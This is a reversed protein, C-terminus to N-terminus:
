EDAADSTYLLCAIWAIYHGVYMGAATTWGYLSSQAYRFVSLDSMGIHMAANCFWSWLFVHWFTYKMQGPFPESGEGWVSFFDSFSKIELQKAAVLGCALFALVIIPAMWNAVKSVMGYGKAAIWTTVGGIIIVMVVWTLSNPMVDTLKPM